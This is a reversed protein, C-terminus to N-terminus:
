RRREEERRGEHEHFGVLAILVDVRTEPAISVGTEEAADLFRSAVTVGEDVRYSQAAFRLAPGIWPAAREVRGGLVFHRAIEFSDMLVQGDDVLLPVTVRGLPRRAALRLPLEGMLPVHQVYDYAVRHHDLAWRAKDCWPAFSEAYLRRM